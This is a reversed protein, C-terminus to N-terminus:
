VADDRGYGAASAYQWALWGETQEAGYLLDEQGRMSATQLGATLGANHGDYYRVTGLVGGDELTAIYVLCGAFTDDRSIEVITHLELATRTKM